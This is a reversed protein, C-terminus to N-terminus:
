RHMFMNYTQVQNPDPFSNQMEADSSYNGKGAKEIGLKSGM